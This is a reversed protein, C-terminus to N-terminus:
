ESCIGKREREFAEVWQEKELVCVCVYLRLVKFSVLSNLSELELIYSLSYTFYIFSCGFIINEAQNKM